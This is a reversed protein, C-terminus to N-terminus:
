QTLASPVPIDALKSAGSDTSFFELVDDLENGEKECWQVLQDVRKQATDMANKEAQIRAEAEAISKKRETMFSTLQAKASDSYALLTKIKLLADNTISASNVGPTAKSMTVLMTGVMTRKAPLPIDAGLEALMKLFGEATLPVPPVNAEVYIPSFDVSNGSVLPAAPAKPAVPATPDVAGLGADVKIDTANLGPMQENMQGLTMGSTSAAQLQALLDKPMGAGDAAHDLTGGTDEFILNNAKKILDKLAM